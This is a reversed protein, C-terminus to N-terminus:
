RAPKVRIEFLKPWCKGTVFVRDARSDWAIGNLVHEAGGRESESLLDSCDIRGLVVGTRPDIRLIHDSHWVNAWLEGRVYELENLELVPEGHERVVVTRVLDFNAPEVFRLVDSGDSVILLKGDSALGWGEGDYRATGIARLDEVAYKFATQQQWTLQYVVGDLVTLGEGFCTVPLPRKTLVEGNWLEVIRASSRGYQGQSEYLRGNAYALGQTFSSADHPYTEVIEIGDIPTISSVPNPASAEASPPRPEPTTSPQM